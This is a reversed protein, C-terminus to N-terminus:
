TADIADKSLANVWLNTLVVDNAALIFRPWVSSPGIRSIVCKSGPPTKAVVLETGPQLTHMKQWFFNLAVILKARLTSGRMQQESAHVGAASPVM